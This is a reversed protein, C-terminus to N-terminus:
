IISLSYFYKTIKNECQVILDCFSNMTLTEPAPNAKSKKKFKLLLTYQMQCSIHTHVCISMHMRIERKGVEFEKQSSDSNITQYSGQWFIEQACLYLFSHFSIPFQSFNFIYAERACLNSQKPTFMSELLLLIRIKGSWIERQPFVPFFNLFVKTSTTNSSCHMQHNNEEKKGGRKRSNCVVFSFRFMKLIFINCTKQFYQAFLSFPLEGCMKFYINTNLSIYM